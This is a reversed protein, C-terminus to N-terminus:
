LSEDILIVSKPIERILHPYQADFEREIIELTIQTNEENIKFSVNNVLSGFETQVSKFQLQGNLNNPQTKLDNVDTFVSPINGWLFTRLENPEIIEFFPLTLFISAKNYRRNNRMDWADIDNNSIILFLTKRGIIDNFQIHVTNRSASFTFNLRGDFKGKSLIYGSGRCFDKSNLDPAINDNIIPNPSTSCGFFIILIIVIHYKNM